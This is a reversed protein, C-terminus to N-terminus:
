RIQEKRIMRSNLLPVLFLSTTLSQHLARTIRLWSPIGLDHLMPTTYIGSLNCCLRHSGLVYVVMHVHVYVYVSVCICVHVCVRVYVYACVYVHICVYM